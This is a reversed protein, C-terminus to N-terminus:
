TKNPANYEPLTPYKYIVSPAEADIDIDPTPKEPLNNSQSPRNIIKALRHRFTSMYTELPDSPPTRNKSQRIFPSPIIYKRMGWYKEPKTILCFSKLWLKLKPFCCTLSYLILIALAMYAIVRVVETTLQEHNFILDIGQQFNTIDNIKLPKMTSTSTNFISPLFASDKTYDKITGLLTDGSLQEQGIMFEPRINTDPPIHVMCGPNVDFTGMGSIQKYTSQALTGQKCTVHIQLPRPISYVTTNKYTYFVPPANQIEILPCVQVNDKFTLVECPSKETIRV